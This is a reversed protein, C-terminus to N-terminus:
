NCKTIRTEYRGSWQPLRTPTHDLQGTNVTVSHNRDVATLNCENYILPPRYHPFIIVEELKQLVEAATMAEADEDSEIEHSGNDEAM